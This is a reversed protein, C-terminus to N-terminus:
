VTLGYKGDFTTELQQLQTLMVGALHYNGQRIFNCYLRKYDNILKDM